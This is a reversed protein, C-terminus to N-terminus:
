DSDSSAPPLHRLLDGLDHEVDFALIASSLDAYLSSDLIWTRGALRVKAPEEPPEQALETLRTLADDKDPDEYRLPIVVEGRGATLYSGMRCALLRLEATSKDQPDPYHVTVKPRAVYWRDKYRLGELAGDLVQSVLESPPRELSAAFDEVTMWLYPDPARNMRAEELLPSQITLIPGGV